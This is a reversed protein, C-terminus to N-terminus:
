LNGMMNWPVITEYGVNVDVAIGDLLRFTILNSVGNNLLVDNLVLADSKWSILAVFWCTDDVVSTAESWSADRGFSFSEM